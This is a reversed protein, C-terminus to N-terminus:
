YPLNALIEAVKDIGDELKNSIMAKLFIPLDVRITLKMSTEDPAEEVLQIWGNFEVPSHVSELKITKFPEREIIRLGITGLPEVKFSCSDKDYKFDKVKDELLSKVTELNNLDSLKSFIREASYPIRLVSSSYETM